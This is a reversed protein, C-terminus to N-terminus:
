DNHFWSPVYFKIIMIVLHKFKTPTRTSIYKRLIRNVLTLWRSNSLTGPEREALDPSVSDPGEIVAWCLDYLYDQDHSLDYSAEEAVHSFQPYNVRQFRVIPLQTLDDSLSKGINGKLTNPGSTEGDILKFLTCFPLECGYLRCINWHVAPGLLKELYVIAGENMGVSVNCGDTGVACIELDWGKSKLFRFLAFGISIGHGSIPVKHGLYINGPEELIVYHDEIKTKKFLKGGKEVRTLTADKKGDFYM